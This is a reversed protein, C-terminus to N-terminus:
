QVRTARALMRPSDALLGRRRIAAIGHGPEAFTVLTARAGHLTLEFREARPEYRHGDIEIDFGGYGPV